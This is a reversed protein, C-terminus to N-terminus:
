YLFLKMNRKALAAHEAELLGGWAQLRNPSQLSRQAGANVQLGADHNLRRLACGDCGGLHRIRRRRLRRRDGTDSWALIHPERHLETRGLSLLPGARQFWALGNRSQLGDLYHTFM